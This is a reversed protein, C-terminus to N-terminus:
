DLTWLTLSSVDKVFIRNGSVAPQAWTASKAVTYRQVPEFATRSPRAVILEADDNLMFLVTDAKVIATNEAERGRTKWLVKGSKLDLAFFQGSSLHSLGYLVDGVIVANSMFLGAERTQWVVEADWKDGRPVPRLLTIGREQASIVVSDGYVIPSASNNDYDTKLPRQWLLVGTDAALGAVTKQSITVVQRTNGFRAIIPSAYAPGDGTWRWVVAGTDKNFATLAGNDHGGVHVLVRNGDALPSMATGYLPVPGQPAPVQWLRKGSAADFASVIGSIGLTFLKGDHFLPTAKPGDGHAVTGPPTKYPAAYSSEWIVKGTAADLAMMVENGNRRTMTYLRSGVVLPTAYGEGVTLTWRQRLEKPWAKPEVFGAASGDRNPGRWQTYDLGANQASAVVGLGTVFLCVLANRLVAEM